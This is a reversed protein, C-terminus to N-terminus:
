QMRLDSSNYWKHFVIKNYVVVFAESEIRIASCILSEYM